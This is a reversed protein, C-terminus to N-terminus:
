TNGQTSQCRQDTVPHAYFARADQGWFLQLLLVLPSNAPGPVDLFAATLICSIRITSSSLILALWSLLLSPWATLVCSITSTCHCGLDLQRNSHQTAATLPTMEATCAVVVSMEGGAGGDGDSRVDETRVRESLCRCTAPPPASTRSTPIWASWPRHYPSSRTQTDTVNWTATQGLPLPMPWM